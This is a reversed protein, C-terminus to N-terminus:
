CEKKEVQASMMRYLFYGFLVAFALFIILAFIGNASLLGM